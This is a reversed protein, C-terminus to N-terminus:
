LRLGDLSLGAKAALGTLDQKTRLIQNIAGDIRQLEEPTPSIYEREIDSLKARSIRAIRCVSQGSINSAARKARLDSATVMEELLVEKV